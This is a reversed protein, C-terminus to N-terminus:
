LLDIEQSRVQYCEEANISEEFYRLVRYDLMATQMFADPGRLRDRYEQFSILSM